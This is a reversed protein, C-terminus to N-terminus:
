ISISKFVKGCVWMEVVNKPKQSKKRNDNIQFPM